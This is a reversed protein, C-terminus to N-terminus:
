GRLRDRAAAAPAPQAPTTAAIIRDACRELRDIMEQARPATFHPLAIAILSMTSMQDLVEERTTTANVASV